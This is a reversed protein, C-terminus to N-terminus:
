RFDISFSILSEISTSVPMGKEASDKAAEGCFSSLGGLGCFL